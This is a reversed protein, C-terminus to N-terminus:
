STSPSRKVAVTVVLLCVAPWGVTNPTSSTSSFNSPVDFPVISVHEPVTSLSSPTTNSAVSIRLWSCGGAGSRGGVFSSRLLSGFNGLSGRPRQDKRTIPASRDDRRHCVAAVDQVLDPAAIALDLITPNTSQLKEYLTQRM